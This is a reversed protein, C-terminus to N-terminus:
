IDGALGLEYFLLYYDRIRAFSNPRPVMVVVVSSIIM